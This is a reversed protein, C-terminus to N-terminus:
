SVNKEAEVNAVVEGKLIALSHELVKIMYARAKSVTPVGGLILNVAEVTAVKPFENAQELSDSVLSGAVAEVSVSADIVMVFQNENLEKDAM